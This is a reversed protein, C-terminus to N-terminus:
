SSVRMVARKIAAVMANPMSLYPSHSSDFTEVTFDVGSARVAQIQRKQWDPFLVEDKSTRLYTPPTFRWAPHTLADTMARGSQRVLLGEMRKALDPEVDAFFLQVPPECLFTTGTAEDREVPEPIPRPLSAGGVSEGVQLMFGCMYILHTIGGQLGSDARESRSLGTVAETGVAGGYSHLLMIVERGREILDVVCDRVLRADDYLSATLKTAEDCTPLHPCHVEFGEKALLPVFDQYHQPIHWAGHVLVIASNSETTM